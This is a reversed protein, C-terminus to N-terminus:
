FTKVSVGTKEEIKRKSEIIEKEIVPNAIQANLRLHHCTHSGVDILGSDIMESVNEWSMLAPKYQSEDLALEQQITNLFAHIENDSFRKTNAILQSLEEQTPPVNNFKYDTHGYKLWSVSSSSWFNPKNIAIETITRALREPWFMQHTGMMDSVLFITAPIKMEQLVPFAYEYNDAWGDDFTIACSKKPLPLGSSKQELWDVLKVFEFHKNLLALNNRFTAPSVFMGPEEFRTREDDKPLVRHYMLVLLQPENPLQTHKGFKAAVSQVGRKIAYKLPNSKDM